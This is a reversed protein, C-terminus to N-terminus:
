NNKKIINSMDQFLKEERKFQRDLLVGRNFLDYAKEENGLKLHTKGLWYYTGIYDSNRELSKEFFYQAEEFSGKPPESFLISKARRTSPKAASRSCPIVISTAYLNKEVFFLFNITASVGPCSCYVLFIVVPGEVASKAIINTSALFPIKVCVFLCECM